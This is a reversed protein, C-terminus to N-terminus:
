TTFINTQSGRIEYMLIWSFRLIKYYLKRFISMIRNSNSGKKFAFISDYSDENLILSTIMDETLEPPDQLDSCMMIIISPNMDIAKKLGYAMSIESTYTQLNNIGKVRNDHNMIEKIKFITQDKSNNDILLMNFTIEKEKIKIKASEFAKISRKYLKWLNSEENLASAVYIIKIPSTTEM